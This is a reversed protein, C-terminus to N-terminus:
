LPRLGSFVHVRAFRGQVKEPGDLAVKLTLEEKGLLAPRHGGVAFGSQQHLVEDLCFLRQLFQCPFDLADHHLVELKMPLAVDMADMGHSAQEM